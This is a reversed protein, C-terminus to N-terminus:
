ILGMKRAKQVMEYTTKAGLLYFLRQRRGSVTSEPLGTERATEKVSAGSAFYPLLALIKASPRILDGEYQPSNLHRIPLQPLMTKIQAQAQAVADALVQIGLKKRVLYIWQRFTTYSVGMLVAGEQPAKSESIWYLAALAEGVADEGLGYYSMFDHSLRVLHEGLIDTVLATPALALDEERGRVARERLALFDAASVPLGRVWRCYISDVVPDRDLAETYTSEYVPEVCAPHEPGLLHDQPHACRGSPPFPDECRHMRTCRACDNWLAPSTM